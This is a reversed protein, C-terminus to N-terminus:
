EPRSGILDHGSPALAPAADDTPTPAEDTAAGQPEEARGRQAIRLGSSTPQPRQVPHGARALLAEVGTMIGISVISIVLAGILLGFIGSFVILGYRLGGLDAPAANTAFWRATLYAIALSGLFWVASWFRDWWKVM